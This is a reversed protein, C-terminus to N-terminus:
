LRWAGIIADHARAVPRMRSPDADHWGLLKTLGDFIMVAGLPDDPGSEGPLMALDGILMRSPDIREFRADLLDALTAFGQKRLALLAGQASSFRPMAPVSHGMNKAQLRALHMCTAGTKWDFARARFRALTADTAAARAALDIGASGTM